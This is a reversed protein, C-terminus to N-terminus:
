PNLGPLPRHTKFAIFIRLVRDKSPSIFDKAGHRLIKRSTLSGKLGEL